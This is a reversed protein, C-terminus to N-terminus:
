MSMSFNSWCWGSYRATLGCPVIGAIIWPSLTSVSLVAIMSYTFSANSPGASIGCSARSRQRMRQHIFNMSWHSPGLKEIIPQHVKTPGESAWLDSSSRSAISARMGSGSRRTAHRLAINAWNLSASSASLRRRIACPTAIISCSSPLRWYTPLSWYESASMLM